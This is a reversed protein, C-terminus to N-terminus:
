VKKHCANLYKVARETCFAYQQVSDLEENSRSKDSPQLPGTIIDWDIKDSGPPPIRDEAIPKGIGIM